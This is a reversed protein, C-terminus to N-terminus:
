IQIKITCLPNLTACHHAPVYVYKENLAEDIWKKRTRLLHCNWFSLKFEHGSSKGDVLIAAPFLVM